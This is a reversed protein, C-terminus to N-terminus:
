VAVAASGIRDPLRPNGRHGAMGVVGGVQLRVGMNCVPFDPILWVRLSEKAAADSLKCAEGLIRVADNGAAAYDMLTSVSSRGGAGRFCNIRCGLDNHSRSMALADGDSIPLVFQIATGRGGAIAQRARVRRVGNGGCHVDDVEWSGPAM